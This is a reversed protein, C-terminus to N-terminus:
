HLSSVCFLEPSFLVPLFSSFLEYYLGSCCKKREGVSPFKTKKMEAEHIMDRLSVWFFILLKNKKRHVRSIGIFFIIDQTFAFALPLAGLSGETRKM